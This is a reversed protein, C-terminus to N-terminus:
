YGIALWNFTRVGPESTANRFKFQTKSGTFLYAGTAANENRNLVNSEGVCCGVWLAATPFAINYNILEIGVGDSSIKGWQVILGNPLVLYQTSFDNKKAITEVWIRTAADQNDEPNVLNKLIVSGFDVFNSGQGRILSPYVLPNINGVFRMIRDGNGYIFNNCM